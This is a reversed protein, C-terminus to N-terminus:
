SGGAPLRIASELLRTAYAEGAERVWEPTITTVWVILAAVAFAASFAASQWASVEHDLAAAVLLIVSVVLVIVAVAIGYSKRGWLNRRFGYAINERLVLRFEKEDRMLERLATVAAEYAADATAPDAAEEDPTPMKKGTAREVAEHRQSVAQVSGGTRFRMLATTPPGGWRQFLAPQNRRGGSRGWQVALVPAGCAVLVGGVKSWWESTGLSLAVVFVVAPSFVLYAPALRAGRDYADLDLV